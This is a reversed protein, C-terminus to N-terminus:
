KIYKVCRINSDGVYFLMLVYRLVYQTVLWYQSAHDVMAISQSM